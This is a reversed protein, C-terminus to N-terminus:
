QCADSVWQGVTMETKLVQRSNLLLSHLDDKRFASEIMVGGAEDNESRCAPSTRRKPVQVRFLSHALNLERELM